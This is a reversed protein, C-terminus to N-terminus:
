ESSESREDESDEGRMEETLRQAEELIEAADGSVNANGTREVAPMEHDHGHPESSPETETETAHPTVEPALSEPDRDAWDAVHDDLWAEHEGGRVLATFALHNALHEGDAEETTCVPCEYGM